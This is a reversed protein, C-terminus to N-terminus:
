GPHVTVRDRGRQKSLYLAEDARKLLEGATAGHQPACSIGFSATVAVERGDKLFKTQRIMRRFREAGERAKDPDAMHLYLVFEEGGYRGVADGKRVAKGLVGAVRRLVEDGFPHGHTDNIRKFHDIDMMVVACPHRGDLRALEGSLQELFTKRNTLGTLGDTAARMTLAELREVHSLGLQMVETIDRVIEAHHRHFRKAEGHTCVVAGRFEGVGAVPFLLFSREEGKMWASPLVGQSRSPGGADSFIRQSGTRIVWGVYSEGLAQARDTGGGGSGTEEWAIWGTKGADGTGILMARNAGVQRRVHGVAEAYVRQRRLPLSEEPEGTGAGGVQAMKRVMRHYWDERLLYREGHHVTRIREIDRGIFHAVLEILAPVSDGWAGEEERVALLVGEVAEGRFVPVAAIGTVRADAGMDWPAYRQAEPGSELFPRRFVTAERVPVYTDPVSFERPSGPGRSVLIGDHRSSGPAPSQSLYAVCAAGAMPLLGELARQIGDKLELERRLLVTEETAGEASHGGGTRPEEWPLVLSRSRAITERARIMDPARRLENRRVIFGAAGALIALAGISAYEGIVGHTRQAMGALWWAAGLAAPVSAAPPLRYGLAFCLAAPVTRTGAVAPFAAHLEMAVVGGWILLPDAPPVRDGGRRAAVFDALAYGFALVGVASALLFPWGEHGGARLLFLALLYPPAALLGPRGRRM